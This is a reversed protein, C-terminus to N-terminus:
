FILIIILLITYIYYLYIKSYRYYKAPFSTSIDPMRVGPNFWKNIKCSMIELTRYSLM